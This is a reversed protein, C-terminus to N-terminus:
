VRLLEDGPELRSRGVEEALGEGIPVDAGTYRAHEGVSLGVSTRGVFRRYVDDVFALAEGDVGVSFLDEIQEEGAVVVRNTLIEFQHVGEVLQLDEGVLELRPDNLARGRENRLRLLAPLGFLGQSRAFFLQELRLLHLRDALQGSANSVVEVVQEAHDEAVAVHQQAALVDAPDLHTTLHHLDLAGGLPGGSEGPLNEGEGAALGQLGGHYREILDKVFGLRQQNARYSLVDIQDNRLTAVQTARHYIHILELLHEQVQGYVGAVGHRGSAAEDELRRIHLQISSEASDM